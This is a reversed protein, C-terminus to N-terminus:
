SSALDADDIRQFRAFVYSALDAADYSSDGFVRLYLATWRGFGNLSMDDIMMTMM